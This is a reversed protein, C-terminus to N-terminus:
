GKPQWLRELFTPPNEDANKSKFRSKQRSASGLSLTMFVM